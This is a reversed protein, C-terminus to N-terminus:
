CSRCRRADPLSKPPHSAVYQSLTTLKHLATYDASGKPYGAVTALATAQDAELAGVITM